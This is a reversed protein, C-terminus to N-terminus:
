YIKSKLLRSFDERDGESQFAQLPILFFSQNNRYLFIFQDTEVIRHFYKWLIHREGTRTGIVM